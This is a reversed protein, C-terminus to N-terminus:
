NGLYRGHNPHREGQFGSSVEIAQRYLRDAEAWHGTLKDVQALNNLAIALDSSNGAGPQKWLSIARKLLHRADDYQHQRLRLAGLGGYVPALRPDQSPLISEQIERARSLLADAEAFDAQCIRSAALQVLNISLRMREASGASSLINVARRSASE